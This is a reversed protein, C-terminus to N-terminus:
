CVQSKCSLLREERTGRFFFLNRVRHDGVAAEKHRRAEAAEDVRAQTGALSEGLWDGREQGERLQRGGRAAQGVRQGGEPREQAHGVAPAITAAAISTSPATAVVTAHTRPSAAEARCLDIGEVSRECEKSENLGREVRELERVHPARACACACTDKCAHKLVKKKPRVVATTRRNHIIMHPCHRTGRLNPQIRTSFRHESRSSPSTLYTSARKAGLNKPRRSAM